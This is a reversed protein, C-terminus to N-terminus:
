SAQRYVFGELSATLEDRNERYRLCYSTPYWGSVEWAAPQKAAFCANERSGDVLGSFWEHTVMPEYFTIEKNWSGYIFTHTFREGHFEPATTDTLHNGMGPELADLDIHDQTRYKPQPLLKGLKYDDCNVLAPCPGPRIALREENENLYFHIDFHPLDYVHPPMHGMPNWNMLLYTLPTDVQQLFNKNFPLSNEYGGTCETMPDTTGDGDKDYCWKGETPPDTPLGELTSAPFAVGVSTPRSGKRQTYATLSGKGIEASAGYEACVGRYSLTARLLQKAAQAPVRITMEHDPLGKPVLCITTKKPHSAPEAAASPVGASSSLALCLLGVVLFPLRFKM